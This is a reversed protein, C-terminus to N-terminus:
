RHGGGGHSGGGGHFGGGSHFGAGSHFGTAGHFGAGSRFSHVSASVGGRHGSWGHGPHGYWRGGVYGPYYGGGYYGFGFYAPSYFGWGFPSYLAAEAPWFGYFDFAPDWFWGPGAAAFVGANQAANASAAAEDQSRARSWVYLQDQKIVKDNFDRKKLPRDSALLVEDHKGLTQTGSATQVKAKGDLVMVAQNRADFNYLGQKELETTSGNLLVGLRTGKIIQDVEIISTGRVLEARTDALGASIMRLESNNGVRLFAGPTLLVEAYGNGTTLTQGPRLASARLAGPTLNQGDISVQGEIYNVTGPGVPTAPGPAMSGQSQASPYPGNVQGQPPGSAYAGNAQAFGLVASALLVPILRWQFKLGKM